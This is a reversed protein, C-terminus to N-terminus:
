ENVTGVKPMRRWGTPTYAGPNIVSPVRRGGQDFWDGGTRYLRHLDGDLRALITHGGAEEVSPGSGIWPRETVCDVEELTLAAVVVAEVCGQCWQDAGELEWHELCSRWDADDRSMFADPNAGRHCLCAKRTAAIAGPSLRTQFTSEPM